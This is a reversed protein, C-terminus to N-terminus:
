TFCQNCQSLVRNQGRLKSMVKNRIVVCYFTCFGMTKFLRLIFDIKLASLVKTSNLNQDDNNIKERLGIMIVTDVVILAGAIQTISITQGLLIWAFVLAFIPKTNMNASNGVVGLRPLLSFMMTLGTSYFVTLGILVLWGSSAHPLFLAGQFIGLLTV